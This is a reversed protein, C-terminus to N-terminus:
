LFTKITHRMISFMLINEHNACIVISAAGHTSSTKCQTVLYMVTGDSMLTASDYDAVTFNALVGSVLLHNHAHTCDDTSDM